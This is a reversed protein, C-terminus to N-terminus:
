NDLLEEISAPTMGTINHTLTLRGDATKRNSIKVNVQINNGTVKIRNPKMTKADHQVSIRIKNKDIKKEPIAGEVMLRKFQDYKFDMVNGWMFKILRNFKGRWYKKQKTNILLTDKNRVLLIGYIQNLPSLFMMKDGARNFKLLAKFNQREGTELNKVNFKLRMSQYVANEDPVIDYSLRSCGPLILIFSLIALKFFLSITSLTKTKLM